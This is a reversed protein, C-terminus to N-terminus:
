VKTYTPKNIECQHIPFVKNLSKINDPTIIELTLEKHMKCMKLKVGFSELEFEARNDCREEM